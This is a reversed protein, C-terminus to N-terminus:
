PLSTSKRCTGACWKGRAIIRPSSFGLAEFAGAVEQAQKRLVGSFILWGGPKVTRAIRPAAALLVDSFLNALVVDFSRRLTLKLADSCSVKITPFGNTSANEKAIRVAVPDYDIAEVRSAGLAKAAVALIGAGTGLDLAAFGASLEAAADSLLRLCTATTAHEGTGFAMGAPIFIGAPKRATKQWDRWSPRDSFIKLKGRISLPARPRVPDGTWVHGALKTARGGFRKVLRRSTREDCYVEIKLARSDPWTIFAITAPDLFRLREIWADEWKTSSLRTWRHLANIVKRTSNERVAKRSIPPRLVASSAPRTMKKGRTRSIERSTALFHSVRPGPKRLLAANHFSRFQNDGGAFGTRIHQIARAETRRIGENKHLRLSSRRNQKAIQLHVASPTICFHIIDHTIGFHFIRYPAALFSLGAVRFHHCSKQFAAANLTNRRGGIKRQTERDSQLLLVNANLRHRTRKPRRAFDLRRLFDFGNLRRQADGLAAHRPSVINQLSRSNALISPEKPISANQGGLSQSHFHFYRNDPRAAFCSAICDDGAAFKGAIGVLTSATREQGILQDNEVDKRAIRAATIETVQGACYHTARCIFLLSPKPFYAQAALLANEMRKLRTDVAPLNVLAHLCKKGFAAIGGLDLLSPPLAKEMSRTMPQSKLNVLFGTEGRRSKSRVLYECDLGPDIPGTDSADPVFVHDQNGFFAM